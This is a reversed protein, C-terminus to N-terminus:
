GKTMAGCVVQSDCLVVFRSDPEEEAVIAEAELVADLEGLNIHRPSRKARAFRQRFKLSRALETWVPSTRYHEEPLEEEAELLEKERLWAAGPSLM